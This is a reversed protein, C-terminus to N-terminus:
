NDFPPRAGYQGPGLALHAAVILLDAARSRCSYNVGRVLVKVAVTRDLRTDQTRYVEGMGRGRHPLPSRLAWPAGIMRPLPPALRSLDRASAPASILPRQRIQAAGELLCSNNM